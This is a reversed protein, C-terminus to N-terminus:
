MNGLARNRRKLRKERSKTPTERLKREWAMKRRWGTAKCKGRRRGLSSDLGGM